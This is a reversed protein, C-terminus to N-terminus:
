KLSNIGNHRNRIAYFTGDSKATKEMYMLATFTLTNVKNSKEAM